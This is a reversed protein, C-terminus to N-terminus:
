GSGPPARHRARHLPVLLGLFVVSLGTALAFLGLFGLARALVGSLLSGPAKGFVEVTALLTYHTGGMRPDVHGMMVAFMSVTLAGAAFSEFATVAVVAAPGPDALTALWVMSGIAGARLVSTWGVARLPTAVSALLGGCTSGLISFGMGWTTVLWGIQANTYGVDRLYPKFMADSMSEGIKYTAIFLLLWGAGPLASSQRLAHGLERLTTPSAEAAPAPAERVLLTGLLVLVVLGGMAALVGSWGIRESLVVLVGGGVLMGVKYGVVQAINGIGLEREGLLSVAWGDVAIDMTAAFLNMGFVALLLLWLQEGAPILAAGLCTSALAAQMPLIWSRRRGLGPWYRRDVLPALAAKLLWPLALAGSFGVAEISVGLDLLYLALAHGQFGFPLGQVFYLAGLGLLGSWGASRSDPPPPSM